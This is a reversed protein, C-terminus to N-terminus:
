PRKPEAWARAGRWVTLRGDDGLPRIDIHVFRPYQGIGGIASDENGAWERIVRYFRLLTWGTPPYLDLARGECHQSERSGGIARNHAPTRYASGITVPGGVLARVMEFERALVVARSARWEVPYPTRERDKCALEMWALHASPGRSM